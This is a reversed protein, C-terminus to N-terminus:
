IKYKEKKFNLNMGIIHRDRKSKNPLSKHKVSGKFFLVDNDKVNIPVFKKDIDNQILLSSSNDNIDVDLYGVVVIDTNPHNHLNIYSNTPYKNIWIKDIELQKKYLFYSQKKVFSEFRSFVSNLNMSNGTSEVLPGANNQNIYKTSIDLRYKYWEFDFQTKYIINNGIHYKKM